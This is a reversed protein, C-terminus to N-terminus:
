VARKLCCQYVGELAKAIAAWDCNQVVVERARTRIKERTPADQLLRLIAEALEQPQEPKVVLGLGNDLIFRSAGVVETTIVPVGCALAELLVLGFGEQSGSTSPLVFLTARNYEEVLASEPIFGRLHVTNGLKMGSVKERYEELLPGRGGIILTAEPMADRVITMARLLSDLGKYRHWEDLVGLFLV